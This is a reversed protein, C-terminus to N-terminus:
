HLVNIWIQIQIYRFWSIWLASLMDCMVSRIYTRQIQGTMPYKLRVRIWIKRLYFTYGTADQAQICLAFRSKFAQIKRQTGSETHIVNKAQSSAGASCGDCFQGLTWTEQRDEHVYNHTWTFNLFPADFKRAIQNSTRRLRKTGVKM